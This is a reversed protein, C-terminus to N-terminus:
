RFAAEESVPANFSQSKGYSEVADFNFGVLSRQSDGVGKIM